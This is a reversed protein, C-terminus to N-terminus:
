PRRPAIFASHAPEMGATLYFSKAAPTAIAVFSVKDGGAAARARSMLKKGIKRRQWKKDVAIASLFCVSVRDTMCLSIGVLHGDAWASVVIDASELM